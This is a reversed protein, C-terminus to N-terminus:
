WGRLFYEARRGLEDNIQHLIASIATELDERTGANSVVHLKDPATKKVFRLTEDIGRENKHNEAERFDKWTLRPKGEQEAREKLRGFRTRQPIKLWIVHFDERLILNRIDGPERIGDAIATAAEGDECRRIVVQELVDESHIRRMIQALEQMKQREQPWGVANCMERVPDSFRHSAAGFRKRIFEAASSKGGGQKAILGIILKEL